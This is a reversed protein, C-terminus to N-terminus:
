SSQYFNGLINIFSNYLVPKDENVYFKTSYIFFLMSIFSGVPIYIDRFWFTAVYGATALYPM